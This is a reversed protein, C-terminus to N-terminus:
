SVKRFIARTYIEVGATIADDNGLGTNNATVQCNYQIELVKPAALTIRGQLRITRGMVYTQENGFSYSPSIIEASTDTTNYLRLRTGGTLAGFVSEIDVDYTGTAL